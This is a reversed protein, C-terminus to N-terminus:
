RDNTKREKEKFETFAHPLLESLNAKEWGGSEGTAIVEMDPSFEALAQRCVGCPWAPKMGDCAIAVSLFEREGAAVATFLATREACCTPTFSVSEVNCGTYVNGSKAVLCAGVRFGSYPSYANLRAQRAAQIKDEETMKVM